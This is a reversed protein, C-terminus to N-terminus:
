DHLFGAVFFLSIWYLNRLGLTGLGLTWYCFLKYHWILNKVGFLQFNPTLDRVALTLDGPAVYSGSKHGAIECLIDM